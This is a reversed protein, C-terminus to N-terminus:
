LLAFRLRQRQAVRARTNIDFYGTGNKRLRTLIEPM